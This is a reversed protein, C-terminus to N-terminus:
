KGSLRARAERATEGERAFLVAVCRDTVKGFGNVAGTEIKKYGSVVGTEIKQYGRVVVTAIKDIINAPKFM